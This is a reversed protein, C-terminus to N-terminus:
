QEPGGAGHAHGHSSEEDTPERVEVVEVAFNLNQGALVHNFDVTVAEGEIKQITGILPNEDQDMAQFQLGERLEADEPFQNRQVTQVADDIREGYGEAPTVIVDFKDGVARGEMAKELGPVIQQAGQLYALPDQGESSDVMQGDDLTLKYHMTVVMGSAVTRTDSM